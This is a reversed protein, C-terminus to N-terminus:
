APESVLLMSSITILAVHCPMDTPLGRKLQRITAPQLINAHNSFYIANLATNAAIQYFTMTM